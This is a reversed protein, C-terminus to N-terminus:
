ERSWKTVTFRGYEPRGTGLGALLGANDLAARAVSPGLVAPQLLTLRFALRWGADLVPWAKLILGGTRPPIRVVDEVIRDPKEVGFSGDTVVITAKIFPWAGKRGIKISGLTAGDLMARKIQRAGASITGDALYSLREMAEEERGSADERKASKQGPNLGRIASATPKNFMVPAIGTLEVEYNEM